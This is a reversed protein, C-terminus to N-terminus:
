CRKQFKLFSKKILHSLFISIMGLDKAVAYQRYFEVLARVYMEHCLKLFAAVMRLEGCRCALEFAECGWMSAYFVDPFLRSLTCLMQVRVSLEVPTRADVVIM